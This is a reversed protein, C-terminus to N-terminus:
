DSKDVASIILLENAFEKYTVKLYRGGIRKLANMRGMETPEVKDPNDLLSEVEKESIKRWQM